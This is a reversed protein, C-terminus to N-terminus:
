KTVDSPKPTWVHAPLPKLTIIRTGKMLLNEKGLLSEGNSLHQYLTSEFDLYYNYTPYVLCGDLGTNEYALLIKINALGLKRWDM